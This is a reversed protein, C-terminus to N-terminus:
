LASSTVAIATKLTTSCLRQVQDTDSVFVKVLQTLLILPFLDRHYQCSIANLVEASIVKKFSFITTFPRRM